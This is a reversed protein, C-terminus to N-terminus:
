TDGEFIAPCIDFFMTALNEIHVWTEFDKFFAQDADWWNCDAQGSRHNDQRICFGTVPGEDQPDLTRFFRVPNPSYPPFLWLFPMIRKILDIGWRAVILVRTIEYRNASHRPDFKSTPNRM